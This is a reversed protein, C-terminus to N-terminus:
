ASRRHSCIGTGRWVLQSVGAQCTGLSGLIHAEQRWGQRTRRAMESTTAHSLM